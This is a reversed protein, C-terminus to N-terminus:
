DAMEQDCKFSNNRMDFLFNKSVCGLKLYANDNISGDSWRFVFAAGTAKNKCDELVVAGSTTVRYVQDQVKEINMSGLECRYSKGNLDFDLMYGSIEAEGSVHVNTAEEVGNTRLISAAVSQPGFSGNAAFVVNSVLLSLLIFLKM